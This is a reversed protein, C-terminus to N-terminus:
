WSERARWERPLGAVAVLTVHSTTTCINGICCRSRRERRAASARRAIAHHSRWSSGRSISDVTHWAAPTGLGLAALLCAERIQTVLCVHWMPLSGGDIPLMFSHSSSSATVWRDETLGYLESLDSASIGLGVSLSKIDWGLQVFDEKQLRVHRLM